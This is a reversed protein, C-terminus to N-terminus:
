DEWVGQDYIEETIADFHEITYKEVEAPSITSLTFLRYFSHHTDSSKIKAIFPLIKNSALTIMGYIESKDEKIYTIEKVVMYGNRQYKNFFKQISEELEGSEFTSDCYLLEYSVAGPMDRRKKDMFRRLEGKLIPGAQSTM